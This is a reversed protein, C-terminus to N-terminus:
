VMHARGWGLLCPKQTQKHNRDPLRRRRWPDKFKPVSCVCQCPIGVSLLSRPDDGQLQYIGRHIGPGGNGRYM